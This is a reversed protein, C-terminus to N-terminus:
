IGQLATRLLSVRAAAEQQRGQAQQWASQEQHLAHELGGQEQRLAQLREDARSLERVVQAVEDMNFAAYAVAALGVVAGLERLGQSVEGDDSLALRGGVAGAAIAAVAMRHRHMYDQVAQQLEAHAQSRDRHAQRLQTMREARAQAEHAARDHDIQLQNLEAMQRALLAQQQAQLAQQQALLAQRQEHAARDDCGTAALTCAAAVLLALLTPRTNM